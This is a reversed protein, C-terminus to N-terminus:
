VREYLWKNLKKLTSPRATTGHESSLIRDVTWRSVDTQRALEVISINEQGRVRRLSRVFEPTATAM